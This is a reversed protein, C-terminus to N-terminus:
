IYEDYQKQAQALADFVCADEAAVGAKDDVFPQPTEGAM